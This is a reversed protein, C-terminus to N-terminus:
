YVLRDPKRIIRGFRMRTCSDVDKSKHDTNGNVSVGKESIKKM